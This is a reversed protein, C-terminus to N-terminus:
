AATTAHVAAASLEAVSDVFGQLVDLREEPSLSLMWRILSLDVGEDDDPPREPSASSMQSSSVMTTCTTTALATKPEPEHSTANTNGNGITVKTATM